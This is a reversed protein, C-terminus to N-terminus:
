GFCEGVAPKGVAKVWRPDRLGGAVLRDAAARALDRVPAPALVALVRAMALAEPSGTAEGDSVVATLARHLDEPAVSDSVVGLFDSGSLEADLPGCGQELLSTFGDLLASM